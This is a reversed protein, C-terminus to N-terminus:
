WPRERDMDGDLGPPQGGIDQLQMATPRTIQVLEAAAKLEKQDILPLVIDLIKGLYDLRSAVAKVQRGLADIQLNQLTDETAM